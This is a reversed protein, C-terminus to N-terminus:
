CRPRITGLTGEPWLSPRQSLLFSFADSVGPFDAASQALRVRTLRATVPRDLGGKCSRRGAHGRKASARSETAVGNAGAVYAPKETEGEPTVHFLPGTPQGPRKQPPKPRFLTRRGFRRRWPTPIADHGGGSFESRARQAFLSAAFNSPSLSPRFLPVAHTESQHRSERSDNRTNTPRRCRAIWFHSNRPPRSCRGFCAGRPSRTWV